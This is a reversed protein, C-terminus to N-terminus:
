EASTNPGASKKREPFLQKPDMEAPFTVDFFGIMMEEWSQDGWKVAKTPDPNNKNNPSNDFHATAAIKTGKPLEIDKVPQYWLQWGFDYHPVKLITETEGTPYVLRYEFDKGRLHMHPLLASLKAEHGIEFEADVRYNSDGPPITFKNNTAALTMVREQPPQKCFVIGVKTRDDGAKGNATYHLQLIIDSGAKILRGQGPELISAPLGPAFGSLMDGNLQPRNGKDDAEPVFIEGPKKDRMWKSSGDRIYAIVHHVVARNGPRVEAMQIWRDETFKYPLVVYQYEITGSAPVHFSEPMDFVMDPKGINWGDVFEAPKPLDKPDGEPAGADVWSILTDIDKQPLSRDNRFHGYSPDAFWPPMKRELVAQKMAKAWPRAQQYTLLSFPAAEGPRHCSQCNKELIPAVDKSFTPSNPAAFAVLSLGCVLVPLKM